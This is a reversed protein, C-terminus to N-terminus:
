TLCEMAREYEQKTLKLSGHYDPGEMFSIGAGKTTVALIFHPEDNYQKIIDFAHQISKIRNGGCSFVNWDLPEMRAGIAGLRPVPETDSTFGNYDLIAYLNDLGYHGAFSASEWFVGEQCDGEGLLVFVRAKSGRLKLGLAMGVAVSFGQGLSGTSTEVEPIHTVSPHGQLPSGLQRLQSNDCDIRGTRGLASYLSPVSHGKSLVFRDRDPDEITGKLEKGFLYALIDACSLCGGPHGSGARYIMEISDRRIDLALQELDM